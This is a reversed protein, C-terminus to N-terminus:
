VVGRIKELVEKARAAVESPEQAEINVVCAGGRVVASPILERIRRATERNARFTIKLAV